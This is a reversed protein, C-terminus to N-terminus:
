LSEYVPRRIFKDREQVGVGYELSESDTPPGDAWWQKEGSALILFILAGFVYIEASLFFVNTWQKRAIEPNGSGITAIAGSVYPAVIGSVTGATNTIGMLLGAFRPAIDLHNINFGSLSFGSLGVGIVLFAVGLTKSTTYSMAILFIAPSFQGISNMLKRTHVTTLIHRSRLTDSIYGGTIIMVYMAGFPLASLLGDSSIDFGWVDKLFSPLDTLLTYFGWNNCLHSVTIAWVAPSQILRAAIWLPPIKQNKNDTAAEEIKSEIYLREESSITPHSAPSNHAILFWSICWLFGAAGFVYFVSPWRSGHPPSKFGHKCLEGSAAYAVVSGLHPGAYSITTLKSKELPPAWKAWMAHMAPFTVGEGLGELVRVIILLTRSQYAAIPTILTLLTTVLCGLGFVWKGGYREALMGGPIQTIIYGYFFSSLVVGKDETTWDKFDVKMMSVIAVSLNVRM